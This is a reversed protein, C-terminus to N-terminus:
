AFFDGEELHAYHLEKKGSSSPISANREPLRSFTENGASTNACWTSSILM